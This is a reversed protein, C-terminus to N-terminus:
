EVYFKIKSESSHDDKIRQVIKSDSDEMKTRQIAESDNNEMAPKRMFTPVDLDDGGNPDINKALIKESGKLSVIDRSPRWKEYTPM